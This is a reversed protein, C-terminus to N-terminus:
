QGETDYSFYKKLNNIPKEFLYWSLSSLALLFAFYLLNQKYGGIFPLISRHIFPIFLGNDHFYKGLSQYFWPIFDHFLYISYSIKGIYVMATNGFFNRTVWKQEDLLYILLWVSLISICTRYIIAQYYNLFTVSLIFVVLTVPSLYNFLRKFASFKSKDAYYLSLLAGMGFADVCAPTLIVYSGQRRIIEPSFEMAIRLLLAGVVFAIMLKFIHRRHLIFLIILPWILYFQEEVALSWLPSLGGAWTKKLYFYINSAYLFFWPKSGPVQDFINPAFLLIIILLLYYVPFIRLTRRIYFIKFAHGATMKGEQIADHSKLLISTILFGSLVFFMNVGMFGYPLVKLPDNPPLWHDIIVLLVAIARYGDLPKVYKM